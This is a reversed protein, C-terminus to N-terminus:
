SSTLQNLVFQLRDDGKYANKIREREGQYRRIVEDDESFSIFAPILFNKESLRVQGRPSPNSFQSPFSKLRDECSHPCDFYKWYYALSNMKGYGFLLGWLLPSEKSSRVKQWFPSERNQMDLVVEFPHFDFEVARRFLEYNSQILTATKLIDVFYVFSIKGDENFRSRFILYKKIPFRSQVKEWKEWNDPLDYNDNVYCNEREEKSTERLMATMEEDTYHYLVIETIPKTGWLTFAVGEGFLLDHFFKGMWQKEEATVEFQSTQKYPSACAHFLFVIALFFFTQKLM